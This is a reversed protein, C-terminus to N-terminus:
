TTGAAEACKLSVFAMAAAVLDGNLEVAQRLVSTREASPPLIAGLETLLASRVNPEDARQLGSRYAAAAEELRGLATLNKGRFLHLLPVDPNVALVQEALRLKDPPPGQGDELHRLALFLPHEVTGLLLRHALWLDARGHFWGPAREESAEYSDIAEAYRQM